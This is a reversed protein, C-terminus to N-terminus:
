VWCAPSVAREGERFADWARRFGGAKGVAEKGESIALTAGWDALGGARRPATGAPHRDQRQPWSFPVLLSPSVRLSFFLCLYTPSVYLSLFLFFIFLCFQTSWFLFLFLCFSLSLSLGLFPLHSIPTQLGKTHPGSPRPRGRGVEGGGVRRAGWEHRRGLDPASPPLPPKKTATLCRHFRVLYDEPYRM